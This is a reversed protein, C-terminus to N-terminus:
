LTNVRYIFVGKTKSIEICDKNSPFKCFAILLFEQRSLIALGDLKPTNHQIRDAFTGEIYQLSKLEMWKLHFRASDQRCISKYQFSKLDMWNPHFVPQIRVAFIRTIYPKLEM